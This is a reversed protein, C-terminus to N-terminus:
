SCHALFLLALLLLQALALTKCSDRVALKAEERGSRGLQKTSM